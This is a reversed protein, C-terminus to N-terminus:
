LCLWRVLQTAPSVPTVLNNHAPSCRCSYGQWAGCECVGCARSESKTLRLPVAVMGRTVCLGLAVHDPTSPHLALANGNFDVDVIFERLV